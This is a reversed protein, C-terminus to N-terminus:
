PGKARTAAHGRAGHGREGAAPERRRAGRSVGSDRGRAQAPDQGRYRAQPGGLGREPSPHSPPRHVPTRSQALTTTSRHRPGGGRRGGAAALRRESVRRSEARRDRGSRRDRGPREWEESRVRRREAQRREDARRDDSTRRDGARHEVAAPAPTAAAVATGAAGDPGAHTSFAPVAGTRRVHITKLRQTCTACDAIHRAAIRRKEADAFEAERVVYALLERYDLHRLATRREVRTAFGATILGFLAKGVSFEALDTIEILGHVDRSGDILPLLQEQEPTLAPRATDLRARDLRFV